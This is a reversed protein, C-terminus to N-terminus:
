GEQRVLHGAAGPHHRVSVKRFNRKWDRFTEQPDIHSLDISRAAAVSVVVSAILLTKTWDPQQTRSDHARM